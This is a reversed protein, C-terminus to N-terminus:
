YNFTTIIIQTFICRISINYIALMYSSTMSVFFFLFLFLKCRNKHFFRQLVMKVTIKLTFVATFTNELPQEIHVAIFSKCQNEVFDRNFKVASGIVAITCSSSVPPFLRSYFGKQLATVIWRKITWLLHDNL